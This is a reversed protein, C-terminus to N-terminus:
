KSNVLLNSLDFRNSSNSNSFFRRTNALNSFFTSIRFACGRKQRTVWVDRDGGGEEEFDIITFFLLIFTIGFCKRAHFVAARIRIYNNCMLVIHSVGPEQHVVRVVLVEGEGHLGELQGAGAGAVGTLKDLLVLGVDAVCAAVLTM